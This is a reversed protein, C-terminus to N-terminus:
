KGKGNIVLLPVHTHFTMRKTLSNGFLRKLMGGKHMSMVLLDSKNEALHEELTKCMDKGHLLGCSFNRYILKRSMGEMFKNLKLKNQFIETVAIHVIDIKSNFDEALDLLKDFGAMDPEHFDTAYTIKKLGGFSAKEPVMLVPCTARQIVREANSGLIIAKTGTAGKSGMVVLDPKWKRIRECIFDVVLEDKCCVTCNVKNKKRINASWELLQKEAKKVSGQIAQMVDSAPIGPTTMLVQCAHVLQIEAHEKQALAIAFELANGANQSFDTPVLIKKM